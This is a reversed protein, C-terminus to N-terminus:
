RVETGRAWISMLVDDGPGDRVGTGERWTAVLIKGDVAPELVREDFVVDDLTEAAVVGAGAGCLETCDGGIAGDVVDVTGLADVLGGDFTGRREVLVPANTLGVARTSGDGDPIM